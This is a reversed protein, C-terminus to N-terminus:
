DVIKLSGFTEDNYEVIIRYDTDGASFKIHKIYENLHESFNYDSNLLDKLNAKTFLVTKVNLEEFLMQCFRSLGSGVLEYECNTVDIYKKDNLPDNYYAVLNDYGEVLLFKSINAAGYIGDVTNYKFSRDFSISINQFQIFLYILSSIILISVVLTEVLLFGHNNLKKM